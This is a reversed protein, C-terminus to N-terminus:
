SDPYNAVFLHHVSEGPGPPSMFAQLRLLGQKNHAQRHALTQMLEHKVEGPVKLLAITHKWLSLVPAAAGM